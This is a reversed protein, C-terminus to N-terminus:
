GSRVTNRGASKAGYLAQDARKILMDLNQTESFDSDLSAVGMSVTLGLKTKTSPVKMKEIKKRLREAAQLGGAAVTEPMLIIFEEGGYRGLIDISRLHKQCINVLSCLVQDGIQHGYLDNFKKFEDIDMMVLSIPRNYRVARKLEQEAMTMFHRRNFCATLPDQNALRQVQHYLQIRESIETAIFIVKAHGDESKEMLSIRGEFWREGGALVPIQYEIVQTKGTKIAQQIADMMLAAVRPPMVEEILHGKLEDADLRLLSTENAMIELYRGKEDYIFSLTPLANVYADLKMQRERLLEQSRSLEDFRAALERNASQLQVRLHLIALHTEVRAQVEACEFPKPIYDVGGAHFAKIKDEVSNLASIFIVPIDRTRVDQKLRTCTEFGDMEPMIIDLLILDPATSIASKIAQAGNEATKVTYGQSSLIDSLLAVNDLRDDVILITGDLKDPMPRMGKEQWM